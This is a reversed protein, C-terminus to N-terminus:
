ESNRQRLCCQATLLSCWCPLLCVRCVQPPPTLKEPLSTEGLSSSLWCDRVLEIMASNANKWRMFNHLIYAVNVVLEAAVPKVGMVWHFICFQSTLVLRAIWSSEDGVFVHPGSAGPLHQDPPFINYDKPSTWFFNFLVSSDVAGVCNLFNWFEMCDKAGELWVRQSWPVFLSHVTKLHMIAM